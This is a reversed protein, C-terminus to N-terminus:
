FIKDTAENIIDKDAMEITHLTFICELADTPSLGVDVLAQIKGQMEAMSNYGKTFETTKKSLKKVEVKAETPNASAVKYKTESTKIKRNAM